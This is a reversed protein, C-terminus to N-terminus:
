SYSKTMIDGHPHRDVKVTGDRGATALWGWADGPTPKVGKKGELLATLDAAMDVSVSGKWDVSLVGGQHAMIRDLPNKPSRLDWRAINGSENAAILQFPDAM